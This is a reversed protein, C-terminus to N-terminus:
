LIEDDNVFSHWEAQKIRAILIFISNGAGSQLDALNFNSM